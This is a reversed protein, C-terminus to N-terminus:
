PKRAVIDASEAGAQRAADLVKVVVELNSTKDGRIIVRKNKRQQLETNLVSVLSRPEVLNKHILILGQANIGIELAKDQKPSEGSVATPLEVPISEDNVFHSTLMFFVLLLFIIDILPTLNPVHSNRRVGEFQM